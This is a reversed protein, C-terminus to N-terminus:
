SYTITSSQETSNNTEMDKLFQKFVDYSRENLLDFLRFKGEATRYVLSPFGRLGLDTAEKSGAKVKRIVVDGVKSGLKDFEPMSEEYYLTFSKQGEVLPPASGSGSGSGSGMSWMYYAVGVAVVPLVNM